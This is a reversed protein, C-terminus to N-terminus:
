AYAVLGGIPSDNQIKAHPFNDGIYDDVGFKKDFGEGGRFKAIVM